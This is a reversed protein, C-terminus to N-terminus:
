WGEFFTPSATALVYADATPGTGLLLTIRQDRVYGLVRSVITVLSIISASKLIHKKDTLPCCEPAGLGLSFLSNVPFVRKVYCVNQRKAFKAM